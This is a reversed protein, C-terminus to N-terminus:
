ELNKDGVFKEISRVTTDLDINEICVDFKNKFKREMDYREM